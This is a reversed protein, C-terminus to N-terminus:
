KDENLDRILYNKMEQPSLAYRKGEIISIIDQTEYDIMRLYSYARTVGTSKLLKKFKYYMYREHRREMHLDRDDEPHDFLFRYSDFKKLQELLDDPNTEAAMRTLDTQSVKEGGLLGYTLLTDPRMHYFKKGRYVWILNIIDIGERMVSILQKDSKSDLKNLDQKVTDYYYREISKEVPFLDKKIDLTGYTELRRYYPTGKLANKFSDWSDAELLRNWPIQSYSQSYVLSNKLEKPNEGKALGRILIKMSEIDARMVVLKLMDKDAAQLYHLLKESEDVKFRALAAEVDSRHATDPDIDKLYKGYETNDKLYRVVEHLNEAQILKSYDEKSLTKARMGQVKTDLAANRAM